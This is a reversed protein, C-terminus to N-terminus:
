EGAASSPLSMVGLPEAYPVPEMIFARYREIGIDVKVTQRLEEVKKNLNINQKVGKEVALRQKILYEFESFPKVKRPQHSLVKFIVTSRGPGAAIPKTYEGVKTSFILDQVQGPINQDGRVIARALRGGQKASVPDQSLQAAVAGFDAGEKLLAQAKETDAKNKLFLAAVTMQEQTTIPPNRMNRLYYKLAEETTIIIGKTQINFAAQEIRMRKRYAEETFGQAKMQQQFAPTKMMQEVRERVQEETPAVEEKDSLKLILAEQILRSLVTAGAENQQRTGPDAYPLRELRAYYEQRTIKLGDVEAVVDQGLASPPNAPVSADAVAQAAMGLCLTVTVAAMALLRRMM